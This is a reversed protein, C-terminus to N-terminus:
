KGALKNIQDVHKQAAAVHKTVAVAHKVIQKHAGAKAAAAFKAFQPPMVGKKGAM